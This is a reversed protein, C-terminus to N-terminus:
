NEQLKNTRPCDCKNALCSLLRNPLCQDGSCTVDYTYRPVCWTGNWFEVSSCTCTGLSCILGYTQFCNSAVFCPESYTSLTKCKDTFYETTYCQCVDNICKLNLATSCQTHTCSQNLVADRLPNLALILAVIFM